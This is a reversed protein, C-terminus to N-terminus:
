NDNNSNIPHYEIVKTKALSDDKPKSVFEVILPLFVGQNVLDTLTNKTSLWLNDSIQKAVLSITQATDIITKKPILSIRLEPLIKGDKKVETIKLYYYPVLEAKVCSLAREVAEAHIITGQVKALDQSVRGLLTLTTPNGCQCPREELIGTDGNQYRILPFANKTLSTVVFDGPSDTIPNGESNLTEAFINDAPHYKNTATEMLHPCQYGIIGTEASGYVFEIRAEPLSRQLEERKQWPCHEGALCLWKIQNSIGAKEFFPLYQYIITPTSIVGNIEGEKIMATSLAFDDVRSLVFPFDNKDEYVMHRTMGHLPSSLYIISSVGLRELKEQAAIKGRFVPAPASFPLMLIKKSQTTGSTVSFGRVDKQPLFSKHLSKINLLDEKTLLPLSLFQDISLPAGKDLKGGYFDRYFSNTDTIVFNIIKNIKNINKDDITM